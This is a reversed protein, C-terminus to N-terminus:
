RRGVLVVMFKHANMSAPCCPMTPLPRLKCLHIANCVSGPSVPCTSPMCLGRCHGRVISARTPSHPFPSFLVKSIKTPNRQMCAIHNHKVLDVAQMKNANYFYLCPGTPPMENERYM